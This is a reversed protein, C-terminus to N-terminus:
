KEQYDYCLLSQIYRTRHSNRGYCISALLEGCLLCHFGLRFITVREENAYKKAEYGSDAVFDSINSLKGLSNLNFPDNLLKLYNCDQILFSWVERSFSTICDLFKSSINEFDNNVAHCHSFNAEFRDLLSCNSCKYKALSFHKSEPLEWKGFLDWLSSRALTLLSEGASTWFNAVSAILSSEFCFLHHSAAALLFSYAAGTRLMGFVELQHGNTDSSVALYESARIRYASALTM